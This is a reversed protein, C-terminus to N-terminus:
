SASLARVAEEVSHFVHDAGFAGLLGNRGAAAVAREGDLRALAVDIGRERLRVITEILTQAGTYDILTIGSAEIVALRAGATEVLAQDLQLCIYDANLFTLPAAPSFVLVGPVSEGPMDRTPSWWITTKPLRVLRACLPRALLYTSHLLSLVIAFVVGREVPLLVVLTASAAVLLIESRGKRAISVMEAVRFIRVGIFTLVGALAAEPVHVFAAGAATILVALVVVAALGAFQSRGGSEVVVATRPPSSNVPFAGFLGALLSGAGLGIFDQSIDELGDKDSPFARVVAATQMMCVLAITLALPMLRILDDFEFAPAAITPVATSLAALTRVGHADLRFQWTAFAAGVLGILAGPLRASLKEAGLATAFVLLGLAVTAVNAQPIDRVTAVLREVLAGVPAAIGLMAPLQGVIIHISIGALFGTAVPISLLDAIWGVRLIGAVVLMVGVMLALLGALGAYAPTGASALLALSGTFIPAITSDAGVSIFRSAGFVAFAITGAAFAFLGAEPAMGALRATALQEPIAIAVLTLGAIM